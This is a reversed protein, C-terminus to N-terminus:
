CWPFTTMSRRFLPYLLQESFSHLQGLVQQFLVNGTDRVSETFLRYTDADVLAPSPYMRRRWDPSLEAFAERATDVVRQLPWCREPGAVVHFRQGPVFRSLFLDAVVRAAHDSSILEVPFDPSGPVMPVLGLWLLRLAFHPATFRDVRGSSSDGLITSIRYISIPLVRQAEEVVAEADYKSAEYSNVFGADHVRDTERILGTRRGAVYATSLVAIRDLHSCRRSWQLLETTGDVNTARAVALDEDFRTIAAAHLVADVQGLLRRSDAEAMGLGPETVDGRVLAIRDAFSAPAASMYRDLYEGPSLAADNGRVLLTLAADSIELLM